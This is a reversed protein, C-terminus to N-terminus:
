ISLVCRKVVEPNLRFGEGYRRLRCVTRGVCEGESRRTGGGVAAGMASDVVVRIVKLAFRLWSALSLSSRWLSVESSILSHESAAFSKM